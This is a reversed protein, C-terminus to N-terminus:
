VRVTRPNPSSICEALCMLAAAIKNRVLDDVHEPNREIDSKTLTVSVRASSNPKPLVDHAVIYGVYQPEVDAEIPQYLHWGSFEIVAKPPAFIM